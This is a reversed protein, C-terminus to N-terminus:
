RMTTEVKSWKETGLFTCSIRITNLIAGHRHAQLRANSIDVFFLQNPIETFVIQWTKFVGVSHGETYGTVGCKLERRVLEQKANPWRPLTLEVRQWVSACSSSGPTSSWVLYSSVAWASNLSHAPAKKACQKDKWLSGGWLTQTLVTWVLISHPVLWLQLHEEHSTRGCVAKVTDVLGRFNYASNQVYVIEKKRHFTEYGEKMSSNLVLTALQGEIDIKKKKKGVLLARSNKRPVCAM